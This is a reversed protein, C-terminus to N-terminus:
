PRQVTTSGSGPFFPLATNLTDTQLAVPPQIPMRARGTALMTEESLEDWPNSLWIRRHTQIIDLQMRRYHSPNANALEIFKDHLTLLRERNSPTFGFSKIDRVLDDYREDWRTKQASASGYTDRDFRFTANDNLATIGAKRLVAPAGLPLFFRVAKGDVSSVLRVNAGTPVSGDDSPPLDFHPNITRFAEYASRRAARSEAGTRMGWDLPRDAAELAHLIEKLTTQAGPELEVRVTRLTKTTDIVENETAILSGYTSPVYGRSYHGFTSVENVTDFGDTLAWLYADVVTSSPDFYPSKSFFLRYIKYINGPGTHYASLGPIEHGVANVYGRLLSFAPELTLLPHLEERIEVSSGAETRLDYRHVGSRRLIWPMMQYRSRAGVPSVLDDQNFTEVTGIETPLLSLDLYEALRIEYEKFPADREHANRVQTARGWRVTVHERPIGREVWEDVLRRTARRRHADIERWEDFTRGQRHAEKVDELVYVQLLERTRDDLVRITFNDDVGQRKVFLDLLDHFQAVLVSDPGRRGFVSQTFYRRHMSTPHADLERLTLGHDSDTVGELSDEAAVDATAATFPNFSPMLRQAVTDVTGSVTLVALGIVAIAAVSIWVKSTLLRFSGARGNSRPVPVLARIDGSRQDDGPPVESPRDGRNDSDGPPLPRPRNM